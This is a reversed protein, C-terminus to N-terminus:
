GTAGAVIASPSRISPCRLPPASRATTGAPLDSRGRAERLRPGHTAGALETRLPRSTRSHHAWRRRVSVPQGISGPPPRTSGMTTSRSGSERSTTSTGTSDLNYLLYLLPNANGTRSHWFGDRDAIIASWLPSSLSTGGIGFWGAPTQFQSFTGCVSFPTNANGTCFEAYPTNEDANASVDPVARCPTGVKALSCQTTGNGYTTYKSIVGAGVQYIPRGWYMSNGGGGAGGGACWDFGTLGDSGSGANCLNLFNWVSEVGNPYAPNPNANPNFTEFSTGGVSTM